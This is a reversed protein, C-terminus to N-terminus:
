FYLVVACFCVTIKPLHHVRVTNFHWHPLSRQMSRATGVQMSRTNFFQRWGQIWREGILGAIADQWSRLHALISVQLLWVSLCEDAVRFSAVIFCKHRREWRPCGVSRSKWSAGNLLIISCSSCCSWCCSLLWHSLSILSLILSYSSYFYIGM